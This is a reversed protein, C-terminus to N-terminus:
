AQPPGDETWRLRESLEEFRRVKEPDVGETEFDKEETYLGADAAAGPDFAASIERQWRNFHGALPSLAKRVEPNLVSLPTMCREIAELTSLFSIPKLARLSKEEHVSYMHVVECHAWTNNEYPVFYPNEGGDDLIAGSEIWPKKVEAIADAWDMQSDLADNEDLNTCFTGGLRFAAPILSARILNLPLMPAVPSAQMDLLIGGHERVIKALVAEQYLLEDMSDGALLVTLPYRLAEYIVSRINPARMIKRYLKPAMAMPFSGLTIRLCLYGIEAEGLKYVADAFDRARQFVCGYFRMNEPREVVSDFVTGEAELSPPGPWNFLKLACKTFIGLGGFAGSAGRMIGRLSPGPGDGTFWGPGSGPSGLRLLEGDPLVWEVGLVNRPSYSMYIGDHGVGHMSTASALPSCVPGAGILHTNLGRKMAEAQLQAGSVYPEVVAIMNKEDIELIRDMRRLDVQVVGESTPGAHVGWGTCLAKFKLGHRNCAKVVAQVEETSAPLVVAAPRQTWLAPDENLFPQWAYSDLVAPERSANEEGVAEQLDAFAQDTIM